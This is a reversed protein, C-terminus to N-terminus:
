IGRSFLQSQGAATQLQYVFVAGAKGDLCFGIKYQTIQIQEFANVSFLIRPGSLAKGGMVLRKAPLQLRMHAFWLVSPPPGPYGLSSPMGVTQQIVGM